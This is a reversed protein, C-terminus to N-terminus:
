RAVRPAQLTAVQLPTSAGPARRALPNDSATAASQMDAVVGVGSLVISTVIVSLVASTARIVTRNM